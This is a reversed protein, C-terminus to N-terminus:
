RIPAQSGQRPVVKPSAGSINSSPTSVSKSIENTKTVQAFVKATTTPNAPKTSQAPVPTITAKSLSQSVSSPKPEPLKTKPTEVKVIPKEINVIKLGEPIKHNSLIQKTDADEMVVEESVEELTAEKVAQQLIDTKSEVKVAVAEKKPSKKKGQRPRIGWGGRGEEGEREEEAKPQRWEWCKRGGRTQEQDGYEEKEEGRRRSVQSLM